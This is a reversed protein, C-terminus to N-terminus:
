HSGTIMQEQTADDCGWDRVQANAGMSFILAIALTIKIKKM